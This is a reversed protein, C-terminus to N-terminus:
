LTLELVALGVCLSRTEFLFFLLSSSLPPSPLPSSFLLSFFLLSSFSLLLSSFIKIERPSIGNMGHQKLGQSLHFPLLTHQLCSVGAKHYVDMM